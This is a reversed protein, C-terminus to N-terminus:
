NFLRDEKKICRLNARIASSSNTKDIAMVLMEGTIKSLFNDFRINGVENSWSFLFDNNASLKFSESEVIVLNKSTNINLQIEVLTEDNTTGTCLILQSKDQACAYGSALIFILLFSRGMTM